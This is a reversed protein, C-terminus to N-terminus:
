LLRVPNAKPIVTIPMTMDMNWRGAMAICNVPLAALSIMTSILLLVLKWVMTEQIYGLHWNVKLIIISNRSAVSQVRRKLKDAWAM